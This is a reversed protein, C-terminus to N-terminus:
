ADAEATLNVLLTKFRVLSTRCLDRMRQLEAVTPPPDNKTILAELRDRESVVENRTLLFYAKTEVSGNTKSTALSLGAGAVTEGAGPYDAMQVVVYRLGYHKKEGPTLIKNLRSAYDVAGQKTECAVPKRNKTEGISGGKLLVGFQGDVVKAAAQEQTERFWEDFIETALRDPVDNLGVYVGIASRITLYVDDHYAKKARWKDEYGKYIDDNRDVRSAAEMADKVIQSLTAAEIPKGSYTQYNGTIKTGSGAPKNNEHWLRIKERIANVKRHATKAEPAHPFTGAAMLRQYVSNARELDGHLTEINDGDGVKAGDGADDTILLGFHQKGNGDVITAYLEPRAGVINSWRAETIKGSYENWDAMQVTGEKGILSPVKTGAVKTGAGAVAILENIKNWFEQDDSFDFDIAISNGGLQSAFRKSGRISYEKKNKNYFASVFGDDLTKSYRGNHSNFKFGLQELRADVEESENEPVKAGDGAMSENWVYGENLSDDWKGILENMHRAEINGDPKKKYSIYPSVMRFNDPNDGFIHMYADNLGHFWDLKTKFTESPDVVHMGHPVKAGSGAMPGQVGDVAPDECPFAVGNGTEQNMKSLTECHAASAAANMIIEGGEVKIKGEPTKVEIGAGEPTHKVGVLLGDGAASPNPKGDVKTGAGHSKLNLSVFENLDFLSFDSNSVSGATSYSIAIPKKKGEIEADGIIEYHPVKGSLKEFKTRTEETHPGTIECVDITFLRPSVDISVKFTNHTGAFKVIRELEKKMKHVDTIGYFIEQGHKGIWWGNERYKQLKKLISEPIIIKNELPKAAGKDNSEMFERGFMVEDFFIQFAERPTRNGNPNYEKKFAASVHAPVDNLAKIKKYAEDPTKSVDVIKEFRAFDTAAAATSNANGSEKVLSVVYVEDKSDTLKVEEGARFADLDAQRITDFTGSSQLLKIRKATTTGPVVEIRDIKAIIPEEAGLAWIEYSKGILPKIWAEDIHFKENNIERLTSKPTRLKKGMEQVRALDSQKGEGINEAEKQRAKDKEYKKIENGVAGPNTGGLAQAIEKRSLGLKHLLWMKVHRKSDLKLIQEQTM